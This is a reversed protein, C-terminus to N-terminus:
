NVIREAVGQAHPITAALGTGAVWSGAIHLGSDTTAAVAASAVARMTPTM